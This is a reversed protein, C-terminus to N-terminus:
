SCYELRQHEILSLAASWADNIITEVEPRDFQCATHECVEPSPYYLDASSLAKVQAQCARELFYIEHFARKVTDGTALLGHNRLIMARHNGMDSILREREELSLAIGEYHHYALRNYFKLAHQSIPLLGHKQASVAIGDATHTHIVCNIDARAHHLASHIVFGAVNVKKSKDYDEVINGEHDIKVLDSARMKDFAIGYHNILFCEKEHPLRLSIHTDILDTMKYYAILRYLAALQCRAEWEALHVIQKLDM